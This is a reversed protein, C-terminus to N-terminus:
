AQGVVLDGSASGPRTTTSSPRPRRTSPAGARRTPSGRTVLGFTRKAVKGDSKFAFISQYVATDARKVMSTLIVPRWTPDPVTLYQDTRRLRDGAQGGGGGGPLVRCVVGRRCHLRHGAGGRYMAQAVAKAGAPDNLGKTGVGTDLRM